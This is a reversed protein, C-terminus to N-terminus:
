KRKLQPRLERQRHHKSNENYVSESTYFKSSSDLTNYTFAKLLNGSSDYVWEEVTKGNTLEEGVVYSVTKVKLGLANYSHETIAEYSDQTGYTITSVEKLCQNKDNFVRQTSVTKQTDVVLSSLANGDGDFEDTQSDGLFSM